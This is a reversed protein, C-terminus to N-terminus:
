TSKKTFVIKLPALVNTGSVVVIQSEPEYNKLPGLHFEHSGAGVSLSKNTRGNKEGDIFVNRDTEFSVVVYEM